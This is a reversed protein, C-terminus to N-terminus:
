SATPVGGGYSLVEVRVRTRGQDLFGLERAARRSLDIVKTAAVKPAGFPGRDIVRVRVTRDNDLNTVRLVTGFPFRRHAAVLASQDLPEGSATRKRDLIDAYYTAEGTESALGPAPSTGSVEAAPQRAVPEEAGRETGPEPSAPGCAVVLTLVACMLLVRM